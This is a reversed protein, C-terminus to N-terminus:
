SGADSAAMGTVADESAAHQFSSFFLAVEAYANGPAHELVVSKADDWRGATLLRRVAECADKPLMIDRHLRVFHRGDAFDTVVEINNVNAGM